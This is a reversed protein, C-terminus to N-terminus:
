FRAPVVGDLAHHRFQLAPWAKGHDADAGAVADRDSVLAADIEVYDHPSLGRVTGGRPVPDVRDDSRLAQQLRDLAEPEVEGVVRVEARRGEGRGRDLARRLRRM